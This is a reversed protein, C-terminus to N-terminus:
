SAQTHETNLLGNQVNQTSLLIVFQKAIRGSRSGKELAYQLASRKVDDDFATQPTMIRMWHQVIEIYTSQSFPHFSLWLGFRESLSITEEVSDGHHLEAENDHYITTTAQNDQQREKLLHRRNSTAYILVHKPLQQTSGDILTKLAKYNADLSEFSLDDLFLIFHYAQNNPQQLQSLLDNITALGSLNIDICRLGEAAHHHILARILSSKGTGRPGWLLAHNAAQNSLFAVTNSQLLNKPRDIHLLHELHDPNQHNDVALLAPRCTVTDVRWTAFPTTTFDLPAVPSPLWANIKDLCIHLKDALAKPIHIPDESTM